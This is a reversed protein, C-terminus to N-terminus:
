GDKEGKEQNHQRLCNITQCVGVHNVLIPGCGECLMPVVENPQCLGRLDECDIDFLEISCASCFDAM